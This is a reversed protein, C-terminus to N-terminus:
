MHFSYRQDDPHWIGVMFAPQKEPYPTMSYRATVEGNCVSVTVYVADYMTLAWTSVYGIAANVKGSTLKLAEEFDGTCAIEIKRM